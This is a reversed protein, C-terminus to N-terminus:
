IAAVVPGIFNAVDRSGDCDELFLASSRWRRRSSLPGCVSHGGGLLCLRFAGNDHVPKL